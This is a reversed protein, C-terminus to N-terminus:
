FWWGVDEDVWGVAVAMSMNSNVSLESSSSGSNSSSKCCLLLWFLLLWFVTFLSSDIFSSSSPNSIVPLGEVNVPEDGGGM